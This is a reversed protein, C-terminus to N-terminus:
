SLNTPSLVAVTGARRLLKWGARLREDVFQTVGSDWMSDWEGPRTRYDHYALLGGPSLRALCTETDAAVHEYSHDGDIFALDCEPFYDRADPHYTQVKGELGYRRLNALFAESTDHPHDTARGDFYDVAAVREAAQALCITSKGCYSGIELVRKGRARRFLEVGEDYTLWGDVDEPFDFLPKADRQENNAQVAALRPYQVNCFDLIDLVGDADNLADIPWIRFDDGVLQSARHYYFEWYDRLVQPWQRDARFTPFSLAFGKGGPKFWEATALGSKVFGNCTAEQDRKLCVFKTDPFEKRIREVHPLYYFAVDGFLNAWGPANRLYQCPDEDDWLLFPRREHTVHAGRQMNLLAALSRTGCHGTGLGIVRQM